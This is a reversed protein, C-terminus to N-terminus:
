SHDTAELSASLITAPTQEGGGDYSAADKGARSCTFMTSIKPFWSHILRYEREAARADAAFADHHVHLAKMLRMMCLPRPLRYEQPFLIRKAWKLAKPPFESVGHALMLILLPGASAKAMSNAVKELPIRPLTGAGGFVTGTAALVTRRTEDGTALLEGLERVGQQRTFAERAARFKQMALCAQHRLYRQPPAQRDRTCAFYELTFRDTLSFFNFAAFADEENVDQARVRLSKLLQQGKAWEAELARHAAVGSRVNHEGLAKAPEETIRAVLADSESIFRARDSSGGPGAPTAAGIAGPTRYHFIGRPKEHSPLLSTALGVIDGTSGFHTPTIDDRRITTNAFVGRAVRALLCPRRSPEPASSTFNMSTEKDTDTTTNEDLTPNRKHQHVVHSRQSSITDLGEAITEHVKQIAFQFRWAKKTDM